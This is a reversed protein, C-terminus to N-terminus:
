TLPITYQLRRVPAPTYRSSAFRCRAAYRATVHAVVHSLPYQEAYHGLPASRCRPSPVPGLPLQAARSPRAGGLSRPSQRALLRLGWLGFATAAALALGSM